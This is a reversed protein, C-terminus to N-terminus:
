ARLAPPADPLAAAFAGYAGDVHLWIGEERCIAALEPLPDVAGTSVSGATGVVALPIQGAAVDERVQRRLEAAVMRGERDAAIWRVTQAELESAVPSLAWAGVNPNVAAALLDGLAGIPAASSSVYGWFRPHGNFVSHELLLEAARELLPGPDSGREPLGGRGL